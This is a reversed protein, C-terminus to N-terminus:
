DHVIQNILLQLLHLLLWSQPSWAWNKSQIPPDKSSSHKFHPPDKLQAPFTGPLVAWLVSAEQLLRPLWILTLKAPAGLLPVSPKLAGAELGSVASRPVILPGEATTRSHQQQCRTRHFSWRLWIASVLTVASSERKKIHQHGPLNREALLIYFRFWTKTTPVHVPAKNDTEEAAIGKSTALINNLIKLYFIGWFEVSIWLEWM